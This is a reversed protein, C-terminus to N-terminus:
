KNYKVIQAPSTIHQQLIGKQSNMIADILLNYERKCESIAREFQMIHENIALLMSTATLMDNIEDDSENVLKAMGELGKSLIRENESLALLTSNM